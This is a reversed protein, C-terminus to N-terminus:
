WEKVLSKYAKKIDAQSATRSVGLIKYPDHEPAAKVWHVSLVLLFIALLRPCTGPHRRDRWVTM